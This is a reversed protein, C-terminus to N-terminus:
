ATFETEGDSACGLLHSGAGCGEEQLDVQKVYSLYTKSLWFSLRLSIFLTNPEWMRNFPFTWDTGTKSQLDIGELGGHHQECTFDPSCHGIRNNAEANCLAPPGLNASKHWPSSGAWVITKRVPASMGSIVFSLIERWPIKSSSQSNSSILMIRTFYSWWVSKEERM